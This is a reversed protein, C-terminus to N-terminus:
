ASIRRSGSLGASRAPACCVPTAGAGRVGVARVLRRKDGRARATFAGLVSLARVIDVINHTRCDKCERVGSPTRGLPCRMKDPIREHLNLGYEANRQRCSLDLAESERLARGTRRAVTPSTVGCYGRPVARWCPGPASVPGCYCKATTPHAQSDNM